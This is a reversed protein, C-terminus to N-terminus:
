CWSPPVKNRSLRPFVAIALLVSSAVKTAEISGMPLPNAVLAPEGIEIPSVMPCPPMPSM